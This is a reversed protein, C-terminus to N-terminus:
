GWGKEQLLLTNLGSSYLNNVSIERGRRLSLAPTLNNVVSLAPTLNNVVSLAPTLNNVVLPTLTLNIKLPLSSTIIEKREKTL